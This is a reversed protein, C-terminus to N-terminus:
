HGTCLFKLFRKCDGSENKTAWSTDAQSSSSEGINISTAPERKALTDEVWGVSDDLQLYACYELPFLCWCWQRRQIKAKKASLSESTGRRSEHWLEEVQDNYRDARVKICCLCLGVLCLVGGTGILPANTSLSTATPCLCYTPNSPGCQNTFTGWTALGSGGLTSGCAVWRLCNFCEADTEPDGSEFGPPWQYCGWFYQRIRDSPQQTESRSSEGLPSFGEDMAHMGPVFTGLLVGAIM